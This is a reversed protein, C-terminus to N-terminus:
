GGLYRMVLLTRDDQPPEGAVHKEVAALLRDRVETPSAAPGTLAQVIADYGFVDDTANTAEILGDSLWVLVDGRELRLKRQGYTRGMGGLPSGPLVIEEVQGQRLLYTPPHGANTITLTGARFDLLALTATVFFRTQTDARVVADLRALIKEPDSEEQVLILLAAKIMAMRLGTSLGHGSVDAIIVALRREDLRLIDFYDGGIAASPEFLSAFEVAGSAPLNEPILSKQLERAIQLEKELSEKQAATAVLTELNGSMQNFSRQLEGVQDRRRVPIRLAFDGRRVAETARSLRNVARSLGFIMFGAMGVAVVYVDFLLFALVFLAGWSATDVESSSSFLHSLLLRPTSRLTVDVPVAVPKAGGAQREEGAVEGWWLFPRDAFRGGASRKKFFRAADGLSRERHIRQLPLMRSGFQLRIVQGTDPEDPRILEVWVGSKASLTAELPGLYLAVVGLDGGGGGTGATSLAALTPSGDERAFLPALTERPRAAEGVDGIDGADGANRPALYDPWAAPTRPDGAVRRGSRYYGFVVEAGLDSRPASAADPPRGTRAFEVRRADALARVEGQLGRAADRFLHGMFFGALIYAGTLLLLLVMPIPLVGILFYSFALRRGVTWLFRQFLRWFLVCLLLVLAGALLVKCLISLYPVNAVAGAGLAALLALAVVLALRKRLRANV